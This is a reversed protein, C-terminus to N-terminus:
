KMTRGRSPMPSRRSLYWKGGDWNYQVQQLLKAHAHEETIRGASDKATLKFMSPWNETNVKAVSVYNNGNMTLGGVTFTGNVGEIVITYTERNDM